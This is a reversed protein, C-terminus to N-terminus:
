TDQEGTIKKWEDGLKGKDKKDDQRVPWRQKCTKCYYSIGNVAIGVGDCYKCDM